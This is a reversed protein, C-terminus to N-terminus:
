VARSGRPEYMMYETELLEPLEPSSPRVPKILDALHDSRDAPHHERTMRTLVVAAIVGMAAAGGAYAMWPSQNVGGGVSTTAANQNVMSPAGAVSATLPISMLSLGDASAVAAAVVATVPHTSKAARRPTDPSPTAKVTTVFLALTLFLTLSALRIPMAKENLETARWWFQSGGACLGGGLGSFVVGSGARGSAWGAKPRAM